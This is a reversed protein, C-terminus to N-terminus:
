RRCRRRRSSPPSRRRPPASWPVRAVARSTRPSSRFIAVVFTRETGPSTPASFEVTAPPGKHEDSATVRICDTPATAEVVVRIAWEDIATPKCAGLAVALLAGLAFPKGM